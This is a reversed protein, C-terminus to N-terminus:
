ISGDENLYGRLVRLVEDFPIEQAYANEKCYRAWRQRMIEDQRINELITAAASLIALSERKSATAHLARQFTDRRIRDKHTSSL